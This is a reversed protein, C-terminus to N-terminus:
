YEIGGSPAQSQRSIQGNPEVYFADNESLVVCMRFGSSRSAKKVAEILEDLASPPMPKSWNIKSHWQVHFVKAESVKSISSFVVRRREYITAMYRIVVYPYPSANCSIM